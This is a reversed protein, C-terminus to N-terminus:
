REVDERLNGALRIDNIMRDWAEPNESGIMQFAKDDVYVDAYPKGFHLEDYPIQYKRLWVKLSTEHLAKVKAVDGEQSKMGRATYIIIYYGADKLKQLTRVAEGYPKREYYARPGGDGHVDELIVGDLDFVIRM